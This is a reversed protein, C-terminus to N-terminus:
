SVKPHNVKTSEDQMLIPPMSEVSPFIIVNYQGRKSLHRIQKDKEKIQKSLKESVSEDEKALAKRNEVWRINNLETELCEKLLDEQTFQHKIEQRQKMRQIQQQRLATAEKRIADAAETDLSKNKTSERVTRSLNFENTDASEIKTRKDQRLEADEESFSVKRKIIPKPKSPEKYAKSSQKTGDDEKRSRDSTKRRKGDEEDSDEEGEDETDNFDSDFEDPSAEEKEEDYSEGDSEEGEGWFESNYFEQDFNADEGELATSRVGCTSRKERLLVAPIESM